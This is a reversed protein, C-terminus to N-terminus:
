NIIRKKCEPPPAKGNELNSTFTDSDDRRQEFLRPSTAYINIDHGMAVISADGPKNRMPLTGQLVKKAGQRNILYGHRCLANEAKVLNEAVYEDKQCKRWCSGMNIIDWDAPVDQLQQKITNHVKAPSYPCELDDEFILCAEDDTALFDSLIQCHGLHCCIRGSNLQCDYTIVGNEVLKDRDIENKNPGQIFKTNFGFNSMFRKIHDERKPIYLAYVPIDVKTYFNFYIYVSVIVIVIMFGIIALYKM